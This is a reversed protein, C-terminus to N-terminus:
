SISRILANYHESDAQKILDLVKGVISHLEGLVVDTTEFEEFTENHSFSNIFRYILELDSAEEKTLKYDTGKNCKHNQHHVVM